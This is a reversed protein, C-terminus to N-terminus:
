AGFVGDERPRFMLETMSGSMSVMVSTSFFDCCGGPLPLGRLLKLLLGAVARLSVFAADGGVLALVLSVWECFVKCNALMDSFAGWPFRVVKLGFGLFEDRIGFRIDNRLNRWDVRLGWDLAAVSSFRLECDANVVTFPLCDTM